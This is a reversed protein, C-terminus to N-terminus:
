TVSENRVEWGGPNTHSPKLRFGVQNMGPTLEVDIVKEEGFRPEEERSKFVQTLSRPRPIGAICGPASKVWLDIAKARLEGSRSTTAIFNITPLLGKDFLFHRAYQEMDRACWTEYHDDVLNIFAEFRDAPEPESTPFGAYIWIRASLHLIRLQNILDEQELTSSSLPDSVFTEFGSQWTFLNTKHGSIQAKLGQRPLSEEGENSLVVDMRILRLGEKTLAQLAASAASLDEFVNPDLDNQEDIPITEQMSSSDLSIRGFLAILNDELSGECIVRDKKWRSLIEVGHQMHFIARNFNKGSMFNLVVFMACSTLVVEESASSTALSKGLAAIAEHYHLEAFKMTEASWSCELTPDSPIAERLLELNEHIVAIAIIAHKLAPESHALQPLQYKWFPELLWGSM